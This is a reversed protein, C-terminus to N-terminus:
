GMALHFSQINKLEEMASSEMEKGESAIDSADMIIPLDNLTFARRSRGIGQLFYAQLLKFFVHDHSTITKVEYVEDTKEIIHYFCALIRWKSSYPVTLTGVAKNYVWPAEVPDELV